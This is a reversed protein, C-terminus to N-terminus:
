RLFNLIFVDNLMSLSALTYQLLNQEEQLKLISAVFDAGETEGLVRQSELKLNGLRDELRDLHELTVSQQGIVDLLHNQIGELDAMRRGIAADWDSGSLGRVNRLDDRLGKLTEFVDRSSAIEVSESGVRTIGRTDFHRVIGLSDNTLTQNESFDIPVETLGGDLSLTGEATLNVTGNFGPTVGRLDVHIVEGDPGAVKLNADSSTFAVPDGGNLSITGFAGTGSTDIVVVQHTGNPGIVTDGGPSGAGPQIGSGAEYMTQVHRVTLTSPAAGSSTGSGSRVGTTGILVLGGSSVPQFIEGGAYYTAVNGQGAIDLYATQSGGQYVVNGGADTVFPQTRTTTGAFLYEGQYQSNAIRELQTLLSDVQQALISRESDDFTQRAQMALTTAQAVLQQADLLQVHAASLTNRSENIAKLQSDFRAVAGQQNLIVKQGLPDDSPRQVRLGSSVEQQLRAAQATRQQMQLQAIQLQRHPTIRFSM